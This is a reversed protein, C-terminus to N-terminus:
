GSPLSRRRWSRAAEVLAALALVLLAVAITGQVPQWPGVIRDSSAPAASTAGRVRGTTTVGSLVVARADVARVAARDGSLTGNRVMVGDCREISLAIGATALRVDALTVRAADRLRVGAAVLGDARVGTIHAGSGGAVTLVDGALGSAALGTVELGDVHEVAVGRGGGRVTLSHLAVHGGGDTRLAPVGARGAGGLGQLLVDDLRLDSEHLYRLGAAVPLGAAPAAVAALTVNRLRLGARTGGIRAPGAGGTDALVVRLAGGADGAEVVTEPRQLLVAGLRVEGPGSRVAFSPDAVLDPLTALDLPQRIPVERRVRGDVAVQLRHPRLVLVRGRALLGAAPVGPLDAVSAPGSSPGSVQGPVPGSTGAVPATVPATVPAAFPGAAPAALALGVALVGAKV